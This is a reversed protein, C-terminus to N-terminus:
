TRSTRACFLQCVQPQAQTDLIIRRVEDASLEARELIAVGTKMIKAVVAASLQAIQPEEETTMLSDFMQHARGLRMAIAANTAEKSPKMTKGGEGRGQTKPLKSLRRVKVQPM